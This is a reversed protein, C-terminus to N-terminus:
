FISDNGPDHIEGECFWCECTVSTIFIIFSVLYSNSIVNSWLSQILPCSRTHIACLSIIIEESSSDSEPLLFINDLGTVDDLLADVNGASCLYSLSYVGKFFVWWPGKVNFCSVKSIILRNCILNPKKSVSCKNM